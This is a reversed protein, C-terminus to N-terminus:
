PLHKRHSKALKLLENSLGKKKKKLVCLQTTACQVFLLSLQMSVEVDFLENCHIAKETDHM